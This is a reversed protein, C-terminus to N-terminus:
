TMGELRGPHIRKTAFGFTVTGGVSGDGLEVGCMDGGLWPNVVATTAPATAAHVPAYAVNTPAVDAHVAHSVMPSSVISSPSRPVSVSLQTLPTTVM